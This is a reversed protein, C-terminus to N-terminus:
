FVNYHGTLVLDKATVTYHIKKFIYYTKKIICKKHELTRISCAGQIIVSYLTCVSCVILTLKKIIM